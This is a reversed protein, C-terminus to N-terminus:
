KRGKRSAWAPLQSKLTNFHPYAQVEYHTVESRGLKRLLSFISADHRHEKFLPHEDLSSPSDDSFHYNDEVAIDKWKKLLEFNEQTNQMLFFGAALQTTKLLSSEFDIGLRIALDRKTWLYETHTNSFSLMKSDHALTLDIYDRFRLAAMHNLEFGADMYVIIDEPSSKQAVQLVVQPKWIWYGFGKSNTTMFDRHSELFDIELDNLHYVSVTDFFNTDVAEKAFEEGRDKFAGDAFSVLHIDM